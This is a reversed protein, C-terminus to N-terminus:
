LSIPVAQRPQPLQSSPAVERPPISLAQHLPRHEGLPVQNISPGATTRISRPVLSCARYVTAQNWPVLTRASNFCPDALPLPFAGIARRVLDLM